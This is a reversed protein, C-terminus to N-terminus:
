VCRSVDGGAALIADVVMPELLAAATGSMQLQYESQDVSLSADIGLVLALGCSKVQANAITSQLLMLGAFAAPRLRRATGWTM